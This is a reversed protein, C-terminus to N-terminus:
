MLIYFSWDLTLIEPHRKTLHGIDPCRDGYLGYLQLDPECTTAWNQLVSYTIGFIAQALFMSASVYLYTYKCNKYTNVLVATMVLGDFTYTCIRYYYLKDSESLIFTKFSVGDPFNDHYIEYNSNDM